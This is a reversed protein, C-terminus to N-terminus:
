LTPPLSGRTGHSPTAKGTRPLRARSGGAKREPDYLMDIGYDVRPFCPKTWGSDTDQPSKLYFFAPKGKYEALMVAMDPDGRIQQRLLGDLVQM